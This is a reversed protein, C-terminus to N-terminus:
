QQTAWSESRSLEPVVGRPLRQDAKPDATGEQAVRENDFELIDLQDAM